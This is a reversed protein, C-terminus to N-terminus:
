KCSQSRRHLRVLLQNGAPVLAFRNRPAMDQGPLEEFNYRRVISALATRLELWALRRGACARAGFSFAFLSKKLEEVEEKQGLWREPQFACADKYVSEEHHMAFIFSVSVTGEPVYYGNYDAGGPPVLRPFSGAAVSRIRLGEHLVANLYPLDQVDAHSIQCDESPIAELLEEYLRQMHEPHNILMHLTRSL